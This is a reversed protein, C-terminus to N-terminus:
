NEAEELGPLPVPQQQARARVYSDSGTMRSTEAQKKKGCTGKIAVLSHSVSTPRLPLLLSSM